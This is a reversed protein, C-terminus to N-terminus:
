QPAGLDLVGQPAPARDVARGLLTYRAIGRHALGDAGVIRERYSAILWGREELEQVRTAIRYFGCGVGEPTNIGRPGLYQLVRLLTECQTRGSTDRLALGAGHLERRLKSIHKVGCFFDKKKAKVGGALQTIEDGGRSANKKQRKTM